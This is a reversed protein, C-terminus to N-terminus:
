IYSSIEDIIKNLIGAKENVLELAAHQLRSTKEQNSLLENLSKTLEEQTQVVILANKEIFENNIETFNFAHPGIIIACSLRAPELPNHGGRPVLSGGVFVIDAIRYFIGLEGMTDALYIDTSGNIVDGSSRTAINLQMRALADKIEDKRAAHRPVIITLIDPYKEKLRQHVSAIIKEEMEGENHTSAAVWLPRQGIMASLKSLKDQDAPLKEAGYKINGTYKVNVGGLKEIYEADTSSQTLCLSFSRFLCKSLSKYKYWSKFSEESMHGNVMILPCARSAQTILNPWIESEAFIAIDPQWHTLFKQVSPLTDVPIYQHITKAPLMTEMIKASNVTGTTILFNLDPFKESLATIIPLISISEGASAAHFWAIKGQPRKVSAIGFRENIRLTDEKGKRMRMALYIRILPAAIITIIQYLKLM